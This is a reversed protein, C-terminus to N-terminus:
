PSKSLLAVPNHWWPKGSSRMENRADSIWSWGYKFALVRTGSGVELLNSLITVNTLRMLSLSLIARIIHGRDWGAIRMCIALTVWPWLTSLDFHFCTPLARSSSIGLRTRFSQCVSLCSEVRSSEDTSGTWIYIYKTGEATGKNRGSKCGCAKINFLSVCLCFQAVGEEAKEQFIKFYKLRLSALRSIKPMINRRLRWSSVRKKYKEIACTARTPKVGWLGLLKEEAEAM